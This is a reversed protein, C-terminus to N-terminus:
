LLYIFYQHWYGVVTERKRPSSFLYGDFRHPPTSAYRERFRDFAFFNYISNEIYASITAEETLLDRCRFLEGVEGGGDGGGDGVGSWM